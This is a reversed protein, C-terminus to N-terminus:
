VTLVSPRTYVILSLLADLEVVAGVELGIRDLGVEITDGIGFVMELAVPEVVVVDGLGFDDVIVGRRMVSFVGNEGNM